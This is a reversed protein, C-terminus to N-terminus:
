RPNVWFRLRVMAGVGPLCSFKDKTDVAELSLSLRTVVERFLTATLRASSSYRNRRATKQDNQTDIICCKNRQRVMPGAPAVSTLHSSPSFHILSISCTHPKKNM